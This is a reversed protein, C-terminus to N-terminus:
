RCKGGEGGGLCCYSREVISFTFHCKIVESFAAIITMCILLLILEYAFIRFLIKDTIGTICAENTRGLDNLGDIDRKGAIM